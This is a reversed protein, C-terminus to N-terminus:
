NVELQCVRTKTPGKLPFVTLTASKTGRSQWTYTAQSGHLVPSGTEGGIQWTFDSISVGTPTVTSTFSTTAGFTVNGGCNITVDYDTVIVPTSATKVSGDAFTATATATFSGVGGYIHPVNQASTSNLAGLDIKEGDGFNVVVDSAIVNSGVTVALTTTASVTVAGSPPTISITSNPLLTVNVTGSLTSGAGTGGSASATVTTTATTTAAATLQTSATGANDTVVLGNSLTGTGTTVAFNVPVGAIGNGQGDQVIATITSVGGTPPLTQPSASVLIRAAAAGGINVTLTKTAAGSYATITAVGSEGNAILRVTAAGASTHAQAPQITGLSTMFSVLTGDHVPTGATTTATGTTSTAGAEIVVATIDTAGNVPLVNTAAVLNITSGSPAVLPAKSCGTLAFALGFGVLAGAIARGCSRPCSQAIRHAVM